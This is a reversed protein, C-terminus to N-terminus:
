GQDGLEAIQSLFEEVRAKADDPDFEPLSQKLQRDFAQKEATGSEEIRLADVCVHCTNEHYPHLVAFGMLCCHCVRCPLKPPPPPPTPTLVRRVHQFQPRLKVVAITATVALADGVILFLGM